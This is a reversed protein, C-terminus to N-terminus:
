FALTKTNKEKGDKEFKSLKETNKSKQEPLNM